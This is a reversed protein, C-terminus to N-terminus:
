SGYKEVLGRKRWQITATIEHSLFKYGLQVIYQGSSTYPWILKDEILVHRLPISRILEVENPNFLGNLLNLDWQRVEPDILDIVRIEEFGEVMPSLIGLHDCHPPWADM